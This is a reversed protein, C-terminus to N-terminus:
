FGRVVEVEFGYCPKEEASLWLGKGRTVELVVVFHFRVVRFSSCGRKVKEVAVVRTWTVKRGLRFKEFAEM